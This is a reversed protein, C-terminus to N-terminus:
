TRNMRMACTAQLIRIKCHSYPRSHQPLISIRSRPPSHLHMLTLRRLSTTEALPVFVSSARRFKCSVPPVYGRGSDAPAGPQGAVLRRSQAEIQDLSLNVSPLDPRQLHSTLAKSATLLSSLDNSAMRATRERSFSISSSVNCHTVPADKVREGGVERVLDPRVATMARGFAALLALCCPHHGRPRTSAVRSGVMEETEQNKRSNDLDVFVM